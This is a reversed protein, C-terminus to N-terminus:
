GDAPLGELCEQLNCLTGNLCGWLSDAAEASGEECVETCETGSIEGCDFFAYSDCADLCDRRDPAPSVPGEDAPSERCVGVLEGEPVVCRQWRQCNLDARCGEKCTGFEVDACYTEAECTAAGCVEGTAGVPELIGCSLLALILGAGGSIRM